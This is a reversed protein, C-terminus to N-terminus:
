IERDLWFSATMELTSNCRIFTNLISSHASVNQEVRTGFDFLRIRPHLSYSIIRITNVDDGLCWRWLDCVKSWSLDIVPGEHGEYERIALKQFVPAELRLHRTANVEEDEEKEHTRREEPTSLVAWVRVVKDQGGAALFRGDKSFELAWIANEDSRLPTEQLAPGTVSNATRRRPPRPRGAQLEQALFVRDFEKEKKYKSRFKIYPPPQPYKPHYAIGEVDAQQSFLQAEM